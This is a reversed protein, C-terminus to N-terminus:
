KRMKSQIHLLLGIFDHLQNKDMAHFSENKNLYDNIRFGIINKSEYITLKSEKEENRIIYEM